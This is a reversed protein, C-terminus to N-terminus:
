HLGSSSSGGVASRGKRRSLGAVVQKAGTCSGLRAANGTAQGQKTGAALLLLEQLAAERQGRGLGDCSLLDGVNHSSSPGSAKGAHRLCVPGRSTTAINAQSLLLRCTWRPICDEISVAVAAHLCGSTRERATWGATKGGACGKLQQPATDVNRCCRQWHSGVRSAASGAPCTPCRCSCLSAPCGIFKACWRLPKSWM